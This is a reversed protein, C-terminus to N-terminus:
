TWGAFFTGNIPKPEDYRGMNDPNLVLFYTKITSATSSTYPILSSYIDVFQNFTTGPPLSTGTLNEASFPVQTKSTALYANIDSNNYTNIAIESLGPLSLPTNSGNIYVSLSELYLFNNNYDTNTLFFIKGIYEESIQSVVIKMGGDSLYNLSVNISPDLQNILRKTSFALWDRSKLDTSSM